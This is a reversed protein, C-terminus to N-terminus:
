GTADRIEGEGISELLRLPELVDSRGAMLRAAGERAAAYRL